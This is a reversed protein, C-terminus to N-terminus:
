SKIYLSIVLIDVLQCYGTQFDAFDLNLDIHNTVFNNLKDKM